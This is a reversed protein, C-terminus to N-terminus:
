KLVLLTVISSLWVLRTLSSARRITEERPTGELLVIVGLTPAVTCVLVAYLYYDPAVGLLWPSVSVAVFLLALLKFLILANARGFATAATRVGSARDGPEDEVTYFIEQAFVFLGTLVCAAVVEPTVAGAALAGYLLIAGCLLGVSANGVLPIEKLVYSYMVGLVVTGLAFLMLAPGLTSALVVSAVGLGAAMWGATPRSVRGSPIPREPKAIADAAADRYDNAVNGCGIVLLVVIAAILVPLVPLDALDSALYAGLWTYAAGFMANRLRVIEATSTLLAVAARLAPIMITGVGM